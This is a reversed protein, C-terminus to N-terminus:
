DVVNFTLSFGFQESYLVFTVYHVTLVTYDEINSSHSYVQYKLETAPM